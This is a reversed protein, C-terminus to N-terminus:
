GRTQELYIFYSKLFNHEAVAVAVKRKASILAFTAVRLSNEDRRVGAAETEEAPRTQVLCFTVKTVVVQHPAVFFSLRTSSSPKLKTQAQNSSPKLKTQAQSSSPKLKAQAQSSSQSSSPKLKTQAQSSSPKLKPKLKAQAQSSSPKLKTQAQNSSPKLKGQVQGSSSLACARM